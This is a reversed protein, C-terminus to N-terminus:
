QVQRGSGGSAHEIKARAAELLLADEHPNRGQHAAIRDASDKLKKQVEAFGQALGVLSGVGAGIATGVGPVISGLSAGAAAGGLVDKGIDIGLALPSNPDVGFAESARDVLGIAASLKGLVKTIQVQLLKASREAESAQEKMAKAAESADKAGKETATLDAQIKDNTTTFAEAGEVVLQIIAQELSM